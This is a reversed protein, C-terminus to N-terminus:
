EDEWDRWEIDDHAALYGSVAEGVTTFLHEEGIVPLVGYRRLNDKVPGKLEAFCLAIDRGALEEHM